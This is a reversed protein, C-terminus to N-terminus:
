FYRAEVASGSTAKRTQRRMEREAQQAQAMLMQRRQMPIGYVGLLRAAASVAVHRAAWRPLLELPWALDQRNGLGLGRMEAHEEALARDAQVVDAARPTGGERLVGLEELVMARATALDVAPYSYLRLTVSGSAAGTTPAVSARASVTVAADYRYWGTAAPRAEATGGDVGIASAALLRATDVPDGVTLRLGTGEDLDSTVLDLGAVAYGAPVAVGAILQGLAVPAYLEETTELVDFGLLAAM